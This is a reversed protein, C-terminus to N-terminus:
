NPLSVISPNLANFSVRIKLDFQVESLGMYHYIENRLQLLTIDENVMFNEILGQSYFVGCHEHQVSGGIVFQCYVNLWIELSM